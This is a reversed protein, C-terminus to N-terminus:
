DLAWKWGRKESDVGLIGHRFSKCLGRDLLEANPPKSKSTDLEGMDSVGPKERIAIRRCRPSQVALFKGDPPQWVLLVFNFCSWKFSTLCCREANSRRGYPAFEQISLVSATSINGLAERAPRLRTGLEPSADRNRGLFQGPRPSSGVGSLRDNIVRLCCVFALGKMCSSVGQFITVWPPGGACSAVKAPATSAERQGNWTRGKIGCTNM